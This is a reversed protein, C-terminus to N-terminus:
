GGCDNEATTTVLAIEATFAHSRYERALSRDIVRQGRGHVPTDMRRAAM